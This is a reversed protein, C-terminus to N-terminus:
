SPSGHARGEGRPCLRARPRSVKEQLEQYWRWEQLEWGLCRGQARSWFRDRGGPAGQGHHTTVKGSLRLRRQAHCGGLRFGQGILFWWDEQNPVMVVRLNTGKRRNGGAKAMNWTM